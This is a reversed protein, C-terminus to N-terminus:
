SKIERLIEKVAIEDQKMHEETYEGWPINKSRLIDIFDGLSLGALESARALSVTKGAYLGIAISIRVGEDVSKGSALDDLLAIMEEPIKVNIVSQELAM